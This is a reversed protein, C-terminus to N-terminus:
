FVEVLDDAIREAVRPKLLDRISIQVGIGIHDEIMHQVAFYDFRQAGDRPRTEILIDLDSDPRADGRARSGFVYLRTVGAARLAPTIDGLKGVIAQLPIDTVETM